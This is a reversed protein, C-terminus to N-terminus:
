DCPVIHRTRAARGKWAVLRQVEQSAHPKPARKLDQCAFPSRDMLGDNREVDADAGTYAVSPFRYISAFYRTSPSPLGASSLIQTDGRTPPCPKDAILNQSASRTSRGLNWIECLRSKMSLTAEFLCRGNLCKVPRHPTADGNEDPLKCSSPIRTRAM